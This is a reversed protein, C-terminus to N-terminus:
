RRLLAAVRLAAAVAVLAMGTYLVAHCVVHVLREYRLPGLLCLLEGGFIGLVGAVALRLARTKM